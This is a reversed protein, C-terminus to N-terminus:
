NFLNENFKINRIYSKLNEFITNIFLETKQSIGGKFLRNVNRFFMDGGYDSDFFLGLLFGARSVV